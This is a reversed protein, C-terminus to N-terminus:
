ILSGDQVGLTNLLCSLSLLIGWWTEQHNWIIYIPHFWLCVQRQQFTLSSLSSKLNQGGTGIGLLQCIQFQINFEHPKGPPAQPLSGVECHLLCLLCLNLGQAPFIGQFPPVAIWELIRAQLIEHVSSGPPRCDMTSCLTPCLQLPKLHFSSYM